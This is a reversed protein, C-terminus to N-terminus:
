APASEPVIQVMLARAAELVLERDYTVFFEFRRDADIGGQDGLDRAVFAGAFHAGVVVVDWESRLPDDASL